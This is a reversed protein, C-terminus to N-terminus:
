VRIRFLICFVASTAWHDFIGRLEIGPVPSHPTPLLRLTQLEHYWLNPDYNYFALTKFLQLNMRWNGNKAQIGNQKQCSCTFMGWFITMAYSMKEKQSIFWNVLFASGCLWINETIFPFLYWQWLSHLHILMLNQTFTTTGFWTFWLCGNCSLKKIFSKQM